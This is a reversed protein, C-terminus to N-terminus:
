KRLEKLIANQTEYNRDVAKKLWDMDRNMAEIATKCANLENDRAKADVLHRKLDEDISRQKITTEHIALGLVIVAILPAWLTRVWGQVKEQKM